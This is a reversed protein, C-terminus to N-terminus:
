PAPPTYRVREVPVCGAVNATEAWELRFTWECTRQYTFNGDADAFSIDITARYYTDPNPIAFYPNTTGTNHPILCTCILYKPCGQYAFVQPIVIGPEHQIRGSGDLVIKSAQLVPSTSTQSPSGMIPDDTLGELFVQLNSFLVDEPPCLITTSLGVPRMGAMGM